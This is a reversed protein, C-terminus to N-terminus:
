TLTERWTLIQETWKRTLYGWHDQHYSDYILHEPLSFGHTVYEPLDPWGRYSPPDPFYTNIFRLYAGGGSLHSWQRAGLQGAVCETEKRMNFIDLNIHKHWDPLFETLRTAGAAVYQDLQRHHYTTEM